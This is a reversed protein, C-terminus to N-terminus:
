KIKKLVRPKYWPNSHVRILDSKDPISIGSIPREQEQKYLEEREKKEREERISTSYFYSIISQMKQIVNISDTNELNYM